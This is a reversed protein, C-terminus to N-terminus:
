RKTVIIDGTFSTASVSASGDGFTGSLSKAIRRGRDAVSRVQLPLDVRVSGSFSQGEFTFGTSSDVSMRVSGSHSRLDYRGNSQLAGEYVVDGSTSRVDASGADVNRLTVDGSLSELTLRRAKLGTATVDGSMTNAELEGDATVNRLTIDGSLSRARTVRRADTIAVDGSTSSLSLDGAIGSASVDGSLSTATVTTGAPATIVFAINVSYSSQRENPYVVRVALRDGRHTTEVRVRSLGTRADAETRGRATRVTEVTVDRGNGAVIKIDGSLNQVDIHGSAGLPYARSNADTQSATFTRSQRGSPGETWEWAGMGDFFETLDRMTSRLDRELDQRMEPGLVDRLVDRIVLRVDDAAGRMQAAADRLAETDIQVRVDARQAYAPSAASVVVLLAALTHRTQM